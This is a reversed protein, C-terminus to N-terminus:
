DGIPDGNADVKIRKPTATATGPAAHGSPMDTLHEEGPLGYDSVMDPDFQRSYTRNMLAGKRKLIKIIAGARQRIQKGDMSPNIDSETWAQKETPTLTAGFTANRQPLTYILNWKAWWNAADKSGETGMGAAAMYNPLRSQPGAGLRQSYDDQYTGMSEDASNIIGAMQELKNRDSYTLKNPKPGAKEAKINAAQAMLMQYMHDLNQGRETLREVEKMHATQADQYAKTQENDADKQRTQQLDGAYADAQKSMQQGFPQLVRDGTLAGLEGFSRRRRLQEAIAAQTQKEKPAAGILFDYLDNM